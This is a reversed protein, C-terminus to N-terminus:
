RVLEQLFHIPCRCLYLPEGRSPSSALAKCLFFKTLTLFIMTSEILSWRIGCTQESFVGLSFNKNRSWAIQLSSCLNFSSKSFSNSSYSSHPSWASCSSATSSSTSFASTIIVVKFPRGIDHSENMRPIHALLFHNGETSDLFLSCLFFSLDYYSFLLLQLDLEWSEFFIGWAILFIFSEIRSSGRIWRLMQILFSSTIFSSSSSASLLLRSMFCIFILIWNDNWSITKNHMQKYETSANHM